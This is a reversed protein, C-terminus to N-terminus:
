SKGGIQEIIVRVRKKNPFALQKVWEDLTIKGDVDNIRIKGDAYFQGYVIQRKLLKQLNAQLFGVFFDINNIAKSLQNGKIQSRIEKLRSIVKEELIKPEIM